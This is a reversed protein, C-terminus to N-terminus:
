SWVVKTGSTRSAYALEVVRILDRAEEAKVAQETGHVIVDYVNQYFHEYGGTVTAVKGQFGLGEKETHLMGWGAEPELAWGPSLPTLGQKLMEEQPDIGYKIYSGLTGHLTFRPAQIRALRSSKLSVKVHEYGLTVDFYDVAQGGDRLSRLDGTVTQPRGFLCLAQDILHAGLDYLLGTGPADLEKWPSSQLQPTYRDWRAEYEVLRGIIGQELIRRVTLFDGDWRRNQYPFLHLGKERALAILEGAEETTTTFPKEVVVHKGALLAAKAAEYHYTSPTAVVVVEIEPAVLLEEISTVVEVDPYLEQSSKGRREVVKALKLGPVATIMPAHFVKGGLGFGILGVKLIREM